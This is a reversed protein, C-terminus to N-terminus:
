AFIKRIRYGGNPFEVVRVAMIKFLAGQMVPCFTLVFTVLFLIKKSSKKSLNALKGSKIKNKKQLHPSPQDQVICGAYRPLINGCIHCPFPDQIRYQRVCKSSCTNDELRINRTLKCNKLKLTFNRKESFAVFIQANKRM